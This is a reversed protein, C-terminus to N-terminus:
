KVREVRIKNLWRIHRRGTRFDTTTITLIREDMEKLKKGEKATIVFVNDGTPSNFIENWSYVVRYNDSAVFVFYFESFKKPSTENLVLEKLLDKLLIGEAQKAIGRVEGSHSTIVIDGLLKAPYKEIDDLTFKLEKKVEGTVIFADTKQESPQSWAATIILALMLGALWKVIEAPINVRKKM